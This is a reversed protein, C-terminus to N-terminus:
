FLLLALLTLWSLEGQFVRIAATYVFHKGTFYMKNCIGGGRNESM